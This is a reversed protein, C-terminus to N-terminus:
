VLSRYTDTAEILHHAIGPEKASHGADPVVVLRAEPFAKHLAWATACPCVIDYRGQVITTPIHRIRDVNAQALLAGDTAFFGGHAFYHAEIRAFALAWAADDSRAISAPDVYLRCTANEWTSWADAAAHRLAADPSTLRRYYAGIMDGREDAPIPALFREHQEPFIHSAGGDAGYFFHLERARLAFIGRLILASVAHPHTQAYALALASGWSGGFVHWRAIGLLTRLREIDAVLDWTTNNTLDAHPRSKGAGRQAFTIIRYHTPDFWQRDGASTGGGPGGHLFVVAHGAPNGSQEVWLCHVGTPTAEATRADVRVAGHAADMRVYGADYPEIPPYPTRLARAGLTHSAPSYDIGTDLASM